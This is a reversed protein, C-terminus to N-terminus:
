RVRESCREAKSDTKGAIAHVFVGVVDERARQAVDISYDLQNTAVQGVSQRYSMPFLTPYDIVSGQWGGAAAHLRGAM